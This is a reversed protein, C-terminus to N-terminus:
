VHNEIQHCNYHKGYRDGNGIQKSDIAHGQTHGKSHALTLHLYALLFGIYSESNSPLIINVRYTVMGLINMTSIHM